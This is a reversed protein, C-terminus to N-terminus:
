KVDKQKAEAKRADTAAAKASAEAEIDIVDGDKIRRRWYLTNRVTIETPVEHAAEGKGKTETPWPSGDELPVDRGKVARLKLKDPRVM